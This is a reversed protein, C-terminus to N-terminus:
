CGCCPCATPPSPPMRPWCCPRTSGTPAALVFNLTLWGSFSWGALRVRELGLGELVTALWSAADARDGLLRRQRTKGPEGLIDIAYVRYRQSLPGINLLWGTSSTGTAHLLLWHRPRRPAAPSSM